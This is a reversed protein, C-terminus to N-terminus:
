SQQIHELVEEIGLRKFLHDLALLPGLIFTKEVSVKKALNFATVIKQHRGIADALEHIKHDEVKGLSLLVRKKVQGQDRFSEVLQYYAQGASNRVTRIYMLTTYRDCITFDVYIM